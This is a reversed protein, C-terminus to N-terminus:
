SFISFSEDGSENEIQNQKQNLENIRTTLEEVEKANGLAKQGDRACELASVGYRDFGKKFSIDAAKMFFEVGKQYEKLTFACEGAKYNMEASGFYNQAKFYLEAVQEFMPMAEACKGSEMLSSADKHMKIPDEKVTKDSM